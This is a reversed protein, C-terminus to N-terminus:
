TAQDGIKKNPLKSGREAVTNSVGVHNLAATFQRSGLGLMPRGRRPRSSKLGASMQTPPKAQAPDVTGGAPVPADHKKTPGENAVPSSSDSAPMPARSKTAVTAALPTAQAASLAATERAKKKEKEREKRSPKCTEGTGTSVPPQGVESSTPPSSKQPQNKVTSPPAPKSGGSATGSNSSKQRPQPPAAAESAEQLEKKGKGSRKGKGQGESVAKQRGQVREDAQATQPQATTSKGSKGAKGENHLKASVSKNLDTTPHSRDKAKLITKEAVLAELLPTL